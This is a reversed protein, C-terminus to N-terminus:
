MDGGGGTPDRVYIWGPLPNGNADVFKDSLDYPGAGARSVYAPNGDGCAMLLPLLFGLYLVRAIM